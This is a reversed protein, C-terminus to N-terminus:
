EGALTPDKETLITNIRDEYKRLMNEATEIDEHIQKKLSIDVKGVFYSKSNIFLTLARTLVDKEKLELKIEIM